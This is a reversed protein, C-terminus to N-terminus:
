RGRKRLTKKVPRKAAKARRRAPAGSVAQLLGKRPDVKYQQGARLHDHDVKLVALSEGTRGTSICAQELATKALDVTVPKAGPLNIVQHVHVIAGRQKDYIVFTAVDASKLSNLTKQDM